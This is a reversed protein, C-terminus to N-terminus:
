AECHKGPEYIGIIGLKTTKPQLKEILFEPTLESDAILDIFFRYKWPEGAIPMSQIKTLNLGASEAAGLLRYLSGKEHPLTLVVSAKHGPQLEGASSLLLFRTYNKKNSEIGPTLIELGYIEAALSSAVAGMTKSGSKAITEASEATDESAVLKIHPYSHFFGSCQALAMPHSHVETLAALSCGRNAMLNQRIRLYIEGTVQVKYDHLLRYNDILGGVLSNEIAMLGACHNASVRKVLPEFDAEPFIDVERDGSIHQAAIHHFSGSVGQIAIAQRNNNKM